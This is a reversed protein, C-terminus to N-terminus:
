TARVAIRGLAARSQWEALTIADRITITQPPTADTWIVRSREKSWRNKAPPRYFEVVEVARGDANIEVGLSKKDIKVHQMM